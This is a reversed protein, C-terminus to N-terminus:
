SRKRRPTSTSTTGLRRAEELAQAQSRGDWTLADMAALADQDSLGEPPDVFPIVEGRAEAEAIEAKVQVFARRESEPFPTGAVELENALRGWRERWEVPWTALEAPRPPWPPPAPSPSETGALLGLLAPKHDALATRVEPTMSGPPAQYHLRDGRVSLKIGLRGLLAHLEPRTM